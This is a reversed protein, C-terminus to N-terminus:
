PNFTRASGNQLASARAEAEAQARRAKAKKNEKRKPMTTTTVQSQATAAGIFGGEPTPVIAHPALNNLLTLGPIPLSQSKMTDKRQSKNSKHRMYNVATSPYLVPPPLQQQEHGQPGVAKSAPQQLGVNRSPPNSPRSSYSYSQQTQIQRPVARASCELRTIIRRPWM